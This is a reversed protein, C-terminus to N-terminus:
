LNYKLSINNVRISVASVKIVDLIKSLGYGRSNFISGSAIFLLGNFAILLAMVKSMIFSFFMICQLYCIIFKKSLKLFNNVFKGNNSLHAVMKELLNYILNKNDFTLNIKDFIEFIFSFYLFVTFALLLGMVCFLWALFLSNLSPPLTVFKFGLIRLAAFLKELYSLTLVSLVGEM